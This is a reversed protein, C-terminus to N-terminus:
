DVVKMQVTVGDALEAIQRHTDALGVLVERAPAPNLNEVVFECEAFVPLVVFAYCEDPRAVKGASHLQEILGPAFWTAVDGTGDRCHSDFTDRSEAVVELSGASCSLWGIKGADTEFFVDGLKSSVFPEFKKDSLLWSWADRVDAALMPGLQFAIDPWGLAM